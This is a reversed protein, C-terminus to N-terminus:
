PSIEEAGVLGPVFGYSRSAIIVELNTAQVVVGVGADDVDPQVERATPHREPCSRAIRTDPRTADAWTKILEPCSLVTLGAQQAVRIAKRDDTAVLWGRSEALALCM